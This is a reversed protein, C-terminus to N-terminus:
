CYCGLSLVCLYCLYTLVVYFHGYNVECCAGLTLLFATRGYM